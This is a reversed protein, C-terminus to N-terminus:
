EEWGRALTQVWYTGERAVGMERYDPNMINRCHHPSELWSNLATEADPYGFAINEGVFQWDYGAEGVRQAFSSGDSGTHEFFNNAAMDKAHRQAAAVLQENWRLAPVPKMRKRGCRCGERRLQNIRELMETHFAAEAPRESPTSFALTGLILFLVQVMVMVM